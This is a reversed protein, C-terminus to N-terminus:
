SRKLIRLVGTDNIRRGRCMDPCIVAMPLLPLQSEWPTELFRLVTCSARLYKGQFIGKHHKGRRM